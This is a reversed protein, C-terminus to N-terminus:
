KEIIVGKAINKIIKDEKELDNDGSGGFSEIVLKNYQDSFKSESKLCDPHGEKFKPLMMINKHAVRKIAKRIKDKEEVEKEWKNEDKIYMVDRKNDTCHIPRQTIDLAKLNTTIINSIGEVFGIRGVKELDSLQLKISDVFDMLNMADKCTENLFFQLNFTKNHSNTNHSINNHTGNKVLEANQEILQTNQKLLMMILDKYSVEEEEEVKTKINKESCKQKHKWLGNRSLYSKNCNECVINKESPLLFASNTDSKDGNLRKAHKISLKHDDYSSKKSTGYDCIECHFKHCIKPLNKDDETDKPKMKIKRPETVNKKHRSCNIHTEYAKPTNCQLNCISCFYKSKDVWPPCSNLTSNLEEYHFLEKIRAETKDKCNYKSIEVMNWNNWGGNQRIINYIKLKNDSNGCSIKHQSKRQTFNTTHGIYVDTITKDICFIKYIITNSYDIDDKPM